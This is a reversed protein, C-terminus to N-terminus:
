KLLQMGLIIIQVKYRECSLQLVKNFHGVDSPAFHLKAAEIVEEIDATYLQIPNGYYKSHYDYLAVAM